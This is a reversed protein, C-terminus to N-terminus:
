DSFLLEIGIDMRSLQKIIDSIAEDTYGIEKFIVSYGQNIADLSKDYVERYWSDMNCIEEITKGAWSYTSLIYKDLEIKNHVEEGRETASDSGSSFFITSVLNNVYRLIPYKKLDEEDFEFPKRAIVFSSSSSNTVFDNRIKM